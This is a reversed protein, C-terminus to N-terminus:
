CPLRLRTSLGRCNAPASASKHGHLTQTRQAPRQRGGADGGSRTFHIVESYLRDAYKSGIGNPYKALEDTIQEATWGQGALHWVVAQFSESRQGEPAGNKILDDYDISSTTQEGATNFDFGGDSQEDYRSNLKDLFDDAPPLDTCHGIELGSM